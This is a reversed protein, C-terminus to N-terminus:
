GGRGAAFRGLVAPIAQPCLVDVDVTRRGDWAVYQAMEAPHGGLGTACWQPLLRYDTVSTAVWVPVDVRADGTIQRWMPGSSYIGATVGRQQLARIAGDIVAVNLQPDPSWHNEVEVDLWLVPLDLGARQARALGDLAVRRGYGAASGARPADTNLYAAFGTRSRAWGVQAPLCPNDTFPSGGNIGVVVFGPQVAPV